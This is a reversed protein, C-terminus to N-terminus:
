RLIIAIRQGTPGGADLRPMTVAVRDQPLGADTLARAIAATRAAALEWGDFRGAAADRGVSEVEASATGKAIRLLRERAAPTLVAEGPQFIDRAVLEHREQAVASAGFAERMGRTLAARDGDRAHILVFFSLLLLCLDAFSLAWRAADRPDDGTGDRM